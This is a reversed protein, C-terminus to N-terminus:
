SIYAIWTMEGSFELTIINEDIYTRNFHVINTNAADIVTIWAPYYGLWHIITWTSLSTGQSHEYYSITWAPWAPWTANGEFIVSIPEEEITVHLNSNAITVNIDSM